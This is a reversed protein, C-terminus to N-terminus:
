PVMVAADPPYVSESNTTDHVRPNKKLRATYKQVEMLEARAVDTVPFMLSTSAVSSPNRSKLSAFVFGVFKAPKHVDSHPPERYEYKLSLSRCAPPSPPPRSVFSFVVARSPFSLPLRCCPGPLPAFSSSLSVPLRGASGSSSAEGAQCRERRPPKEGARYGM